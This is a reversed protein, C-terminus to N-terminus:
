ECLLQPYRSDTFTVSVVQLASQDFRAFLFTGGLTSLYRREASYVDFGGKAFRNRFASTLDMLKGCGDGFTQGDLKRPRSRSVFYVRSPQVDGGALDRPVLRVNFAARKVGVIGALDLAGGGPQMLYRASEELAGDDSASEQTFDVALGLLAHKVGETKGHESPKKLEHAYEAELKEMLSKPVKVDRASVVAVREPLSSEHHEAAAPAAAAPAAAHENARAPPTSVALSLSILAPTLGM